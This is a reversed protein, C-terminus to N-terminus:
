DTLLEEAELMHDKGFFIEDGVFFTPIGFCGRAVVAETNSVLQQKVAPDNIQAALKDADFGADAWAKSLVEADDMKLGQEWMCPLMAAIYDALYGDMDAAVAGRMLHLTNIPFHPNMMFNTINHRKQFRAMEIGMYAMKNPIGGFAVMPPNNNTAKFIGGLLCPLFRIEAGTREVIGPVLQYSLYANPSGFDFVFELTKTM